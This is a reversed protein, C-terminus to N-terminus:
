KNIKPPKEEGGGGGGGFFFRTRTLYTGADNIALRKKEGM